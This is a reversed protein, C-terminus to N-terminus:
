KWRWRLWWLVTVSAGRLKSNGLILIWAHSSPYSMAFVQAVMSILQNEVLESNWNQLLLFSFFLTRLVLLVFLILLCKVHARTSSDRSATVNIRMKRLHRWLSFFLLLSTMLFLTFPIIAFTMEITLLIGRFHACDGLSSNLTLNEKHREIWFEAYINTWAVNSFLLFLSMLLTVSIVKKVRWQLYLFISNSFYAIKLFYFIGLSTAFWVSFHNTITWAIASMKLVTENKMNITDFMFGLNILFVFWITGIRSVSVGTLLQDILFIKRRKVWDIYNVVTIFGNGINGIIFQVSLIVAFAVRFAVM